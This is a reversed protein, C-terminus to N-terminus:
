CGAARPRPNLRGQFVHPRCLADGDRSRPGAIEHATLKRCVPRGSPADIRRAMEPEFPSRESPFTPKDDVYATASLTMFLSTVFSTRDSSPWSRM